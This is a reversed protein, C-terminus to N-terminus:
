CESSHSISSEGIDGLLEGSESLCLVAAKQVETETLLEEGRDFSDLESASPSDM